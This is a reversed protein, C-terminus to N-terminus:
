PLPEAFALTLFGSNQEDNCEISPELFAKTNILRSHFSRRKKKESVTPSMNIEFEEATGIKRSLVLKSSGELEKQSASADRESSYKARVAVPNCSIHSNMTNTGEFLSEKATPARGEEDERQQTSCFLNLGSETRVRM